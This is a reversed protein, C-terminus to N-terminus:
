RVMLESTERGAAGDSVQGPQPPAAPRDPRDVSTPLAGGAAAGVLSNSALTKDDVVWMAMSQRHEDQGFRLSGLDAGGVLLM